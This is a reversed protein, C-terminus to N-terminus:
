GGQWGAVYTPVDSLWSMTVTGEHACVPGILTVLVIPLAVLEALKVTLPIIGGSATTCTWFLMLTLPVASVENDTGMVVVAPWRNTANTRSDEFPVSSKVTVSEAPWVHVCVDLPYLFVLLEPGRM